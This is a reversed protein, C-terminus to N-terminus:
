LSEPHAHQCMPSDVDREIQLTVHEIGFREHLEQSTTFLFEDEDVVVPKVLHATLAPETTSMAWVHLDHVVEVDPLSELYNRVEALDIGKPVAHLALDLSERLLEWTGAFIVAAVVLSMFPDVLTWGGLIIAIGSIVVGLSVAADAAMHLYAGRINLDHKMGGFFLMATISNIIVGVSAVGVVLPGSILTPNGFRQLAEWAIGGTVVLLLLGNILAALISTGRWGYTRRDNPKVRSLIHAGWALLLGLVDSLNHGADALLALSNGYVGAGAEVLIYVLNLAIGLAFARNYNSPGHHHDHM